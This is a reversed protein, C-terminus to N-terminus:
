FTTGQVSNEIIGASIAYRTLGATDHINLKEMLHERHKEVTKISIRLEAATGKNPKGEAILQLVEIERSTLLHGRSGHTSGRHSRTAGTGSVGRFFTKGRHVERIAHCVEHSSTQKLLFGVAGAETASRVYADDSHASLILVKATPSEKVVQRTAELGNLLPMAIDMLIVNPNLSKALTVGQRGDQAEGVVTLDSELELMRRFGERVVMHDEVLLVSIPNQKM